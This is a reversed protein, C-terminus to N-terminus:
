DDDGRLAFVRLAFYLINLLSSLMAAVYTLAAATLMARAGRLERENLLKYERLFKLARSSANFEVPLTVLIFLFSLSFFILGIVALNFYNLLLGAFMLWYGLQSGINTVPVLAGRLKFFPYGTHKQLVHGLEHAAVAVSAVSPNNAVEASLTVTENRPDYHDALNQNVIKLGLPIEYKDIFWEVLDRGTIRNEVPIKRYKNYTLKIYGSALMSLGTGLLFILWYTINYHMHSYLM